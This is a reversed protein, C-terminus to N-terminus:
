APMAGRPPAAGDDDTDDIRCWSEAVLGSAALVVGSLACVVAGWMAGELSSTPGTRAYAAAVGAVAGGALAGGRSCALAYVYARAASLPDIAMKQRQYQRVPWALVLAVVGLGVPVIGALASVAFPAGGRSIWVDVVVFVTLFAIAAVVLLMRISTPQLKGDKGAM